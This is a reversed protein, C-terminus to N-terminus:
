LGRIAFPSSLPQHLQAVLATAVNKGVSPGWSGSRIEGASPRLFGAIMNLLTSKGCGSPGLIAVFEGPGIELSVGQLAHVKVEGMRFIRAAEDVRLGVAQGLLDRFGDAPVRHLQEPVAPEAEVRVTEAPENPPAEV